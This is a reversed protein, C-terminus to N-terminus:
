EKRNFMRVASEIEAATRTTKYHRWEPPFLELYNPRVFREDVLLVVGRDRASRIVRGAAQTVKNMGPYMYAYEFGRGTKKDFYDRILGRRLSIMPLGVGVVACGVLLDGALDVSEAFVGGLVAFAAFPADRGERFLGIFDGREREAMGPRQVATGIAPFRAAFREYVCNMYDYSPFFVFWNGPYAGVCAGILEAASGFGAARERYTTREGDAVLVLLNGPDFPSPLRMRPSDESGGLLERFFSTPSLTASFFATGAATGVTEALYASADLCFLEVAGEEYIAAYNEGLFRAQNVCSETFRDAATVFSRAAFYAEAVLEFLDPREAAVREARDLFRACRKVLEAPLGRARAREESDWWAIIRRCHGALSRETTRVAKRAAAFVARELPASFMERSRDVLNHAEDVLLAVRWEGSEEGFFAQLRADPDFAHNYDGVVIDAFRAADLSLEHPCVTRALAAARVEEFGIVRNETILEWLARNVRDFHGRAFECRAPDCVPSGLPCIKEKATLTLSIMDCGILAAAGAAAARGTTRATAFMIKDCLGEGIAKAAPFMAAMTKGTGTPAQIFVSTGDKIARYIKAAMARQERRFEPFPFRLAELAADRSIFRRKEWVLWKLYERALNNFFESLEERTYEREFTESAGGELAVYTVAAGVSALGETQCLIHAYCKVQAFHQRFNAHNLCVEDFKAHEVCVKSLSPDARLSSPDRPTSKIEEVSVGGGRRIIGDARGFVELAADEFEATLRLTVEKKYEWGGAAAEAARVRQLATHAAVGLQARDSGMFGSTLDGGRFIFEM